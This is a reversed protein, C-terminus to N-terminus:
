ATMGGDVTFEAGTTYAAEDSALWLVLEAVDEARGMRGLPLSAGVNAQIAAAIEEGPTDGASQLGAIMDTWIPGPHVSNIRIGDREAGCELAAAKTMLRVGGKSASYAAYGPVASLGAVSSINVIAGGGRRRLAPVAHKMGLFPGRYNVANIRRFDALDHAELPAALTIGANNVLIDLGGFASEAAAVAAIWADEDTVDHAAPRVADGLEEALAAVAAGDLDTALVQAGERLFAETCARGIGRSAAGTILAIRGQLRGYATADSM